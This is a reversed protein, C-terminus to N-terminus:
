PKNFPFFLIFETKKGPESQVDVMGGHAKTLLKVYNLGLGFGKIDHRRGTPVRYFRDFIKKLDKKNIGIGNDSVGILIGHKEDRTSIRIRPTEVCYKVANDLLNFLINSFHVQDVWVNPSQSKLDLMVSSPDLQRSRIFKEVTSCILDSVNTRELNLRIRGEELESMELVREVQHRLKGSESYIISAYNFLRDPERIIEPKMLVQSSISISSIPTQFEHTMNNVFDKQIESLRKQKLIVFLTYSFFVIVVLLVLSSFMWIGMQSVIGKDKNPFYVGFYSSSIDSKPLKALMSIDGPTNNFSICKGFAMKNNNYIVLGFNTTLDRKSFEKKLIRELTEPNIATKVHVAFYGPSLQNVPNETLPPLHNSRLLSDASNTLGLSVNINFQTEKLDLAKKVWYVQTIITGTIAITALIVLLRIRSRNM